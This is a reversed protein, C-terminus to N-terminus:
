AVALAAGKSILSKAATIEGSTANGVTVSVRASTIKTSSDMIDYVVTAIVEDDSNVTIHETVASTKTIAM